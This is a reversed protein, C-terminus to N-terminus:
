NRFEAADRAAVADSQHQHQQQHHLELSRNVAERYLHEIGALPGHVQPSYQGGPNHVAPPYATAAAVAAAAANHVQHPHPYVAPTTQQLPYGATEHVHHQQQHHHSPYGFNHGFYGAAAHNFPYGVRDIMHSFRSAEGGGDRQADKNFAHHGPQGGGSDVDGGGHKGVADGTNYVLDRKFGDRTSSGDVGAGPKRAGADSPEYHRKGTKYDTYSLHMQAHANNIGANRTFDLGGDISNDAADVSARDGPKNVSYNFVAAANMFERREPSLSKAVVSSKNTDRYDIVAHNDNLQGSSARHPSQLPLNEGNAKYRDRGIKALQQSQHNMWPEWYGNSPGIPANLNMDRKEAPREQKAYNDFSGAATRNLNEKLDPRVEDDGRIGEAVGDGGGHGRFSMKNFAYYGGGDEEHHPAITESPPLSNKYQNDPREPRTRTLYEAKYNSWSVSNQHENRLHTQMNKSSFQVSKNCLKCRPFIFEIWVFLLFKLKYLRLHCFINFIM